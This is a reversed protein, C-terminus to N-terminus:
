HSVDRGRVGHPTHHLRPWDGWHNSWPPTRGDAFVSAAITQETKLVAVSQDVMAATLTDNMASQLDDLVNWGDLQVVILAKASPYRVESARTVGTQRAPDGSRTEPSWFEPRAIFVCPYSYSTTGFGPTQDRVQTEHPSWFAAESMQEEYYNDALAIPWALSSSFYPLEYEVQRSPWRLISTSARPDLFLPHADKWDAVYMLMVAAHQRLNSAEVADRGRHRIVGLLPFLVGLLIGVVAIVVLMELLSVGRGERVCRASASVTHDEPRTRRSRYALVWGGMVALILTGNRVMVRVGDAELHESRLLSGLCNCDPTYGLIQHVGYMATFGALLGAMLLAFLRQRFGLLWATGLAIEVLPVVIMLIPRVASLVLAWSKLSEGFQDMSGIKALGAAVLTVAVAAILLFGLVRACASTHLAMALESGLSRLVHNSRTLESAVRRKEVAPTGQMSACAALVSTCRSCVSALTDVM